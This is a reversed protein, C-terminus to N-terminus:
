ENRPQGKPTLLFKSIAHAKFALLMAVVFEIAIPALRTVHFERSNSIPLKDHAMVVFLPIYFALAPLVKALFLWLAFIVCAVVVAEQAPVRLVNDFQTQPIIKHAVFMPFFWLLVALLFAGGSLWYHANTLGVGPQNNLENGYGFIQLALIVLWISFLRIALGVIQQPTM